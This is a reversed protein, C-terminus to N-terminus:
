WWVSLNELTHGFAMAFGLHDIMGESKCAGLIRWGVEEAGAVLLFGKGKEPGQASSPPPSKTFSSTM